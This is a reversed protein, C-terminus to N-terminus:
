QKAHTVEEMLEFQGCCDTFNVHPYEQHFCGNEASESSLLPRPALYYCYGGRPDDGSEREYHRCNSCTKPVQESASPKDTNQERPDNEELWELWLAAMADKPTAAQQRQTWEHIDATRWLVSHDLLIPAPLLGLGVLEHLRELTVDLTAALTERNLLIKNNM